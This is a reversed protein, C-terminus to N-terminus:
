PQRNPSTRHRRRDAMKGSVKFIGNLKDLMELLVFECRLGYNQRLYTTFKTRFDTRWIVYANKLRFFRPFLDDGRKVGVRRGIIDYFRESFASCSTPIIEFTNSSERLPDVYQIWDPVRGLFLAGSYATNMRQTIAREKKLMSTLYEAKRAHWIGNLSLVAICSAIFFAYLPRSWPKRPEVNARGQFVFLVTSALPLLFLPDGINRNMHAIVRMALMGASIYVVNLFVLKNEKFGALFVTLVLLSALLFVQIYYEDILQGAWSIVDKPRIASGPPKEIFFNKMTTENFKRENTYFWYHFLMMDNETWGNAMLLRPNRKNQDLIPNGQVNGRLFNFRQYAKYTESVGYRAMLRDASFILMGPIFFVALGKWSRKDRILLWAFIVAAFLLLGLLVWKRVMFCFAFLLGSLMFVVTRREEEMLRSVCYMLANIGIMFAANNYSVEMLFRAYLSLYAILFFPFWATFRRLRSFIKIFLYLSCAHMLYLFIGYFPFSPALGYLLSLCRGLILSMFSVAFGGRIEFLIGMDDNTLFARPSLGLVMVMYLIVVAAIRFNNKWFPGMRETFANWRPSRAILWGGLLSSIGLGLRALFSGRSKSMVFYLLPLFLLGLFLWSRKETTLWTTPKSFSFAKAPGDKEVRMPAEQRHVPFPEVFVPIEKREGPM